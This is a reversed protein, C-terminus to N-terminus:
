KSKCNSKCKCKKYAPKAAQGSKGSEVMACCLAIAKRGIQWNETKGGAKIADLFVAHSIKQKKAKSFPIVKEKKAGKLRVVFTQGVVKVSGKDGYFALDSDWHPFTWSLEVTGTAGNEFRFLSVTNDVVEHKLNTNQAQVSKVPGFFWQLLDAMHVAIDGILSGHYKKQVFWDAGPSWIQDPSDDTTRLCRAHLPKGIIGKNAIMDQMMVYPAMYRWSQNVQLVLGKKEALDIMEDAEATTTSMPKEVLVHKGAELAAITQPHHCSNPTAIIVADLDMALLEKQSKCFVPAPDLKMKEALAQAKGRVIDYMAVIRAKKGLSLVSPIHNCEAIKGCGILGIKLAAM